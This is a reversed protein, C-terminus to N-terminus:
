LMFSCFMYKMIKFYKGDNDIITVPVNNQSDVVGEVPSHLFVEFTENSEVLGDEIIEIQASLQEVGRPFLILEFTSNVTFDAALQADQDRTSIGTIM